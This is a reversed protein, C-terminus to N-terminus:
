KRLDLSIVSCGRPMIVGGEAPNFAQVEANTPVKGNEWATVAAGPGNDIINVGPAM